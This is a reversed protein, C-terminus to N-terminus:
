PTNKESHDGQVGSKEQSDATKDSQKSPKGSSSTNLIPLNDGLKHSDSREGRQEVIFVRVLEGPRLVHHELSVAVPNEAVDTRLFTKENMKFPTTGKLSAEFEKIRLGEGEIDVVRKLLLSIEKFGKFQKEPKSVSYSDPINETYIDKIAKLMKKEFPLGSYISLNEKIKKDKGSSLRITQSPIRQPFGIMSYTEEGCVIYIETPNTLYSFKGDPKKIVKFKVFADKGTIKISAGKETSTLAEKIDSPCSIRNVDSSSLRVNTTAEPVLVTPFEVEPIETVAPAATERKEPQKAQNSGYALVPMMLAAAVIAIKRM